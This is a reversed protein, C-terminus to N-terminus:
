HYEQKLTQIDELLRQIDEQKTGDYFGRIQRKKDILMFNETHIMDYADGNGDTKVALYSKRALEYIQKKDGTVLNWKADNVGKKLAYRKLQEVSDIQPTVSHSLLMVDNDNKTAEQIQAMHDTMIPCITQCTTFFFDAVYIKDKYDDQTITQGNQNILSFDAITHYKRQHQISSDVMEYNVMAPQFVPLVKKPKLISYFISIIIISLVLLAIGFNKYAKLFSLMLLDYKPTVTLNSLLFVVCDYSFVIKLLLILGNLRQTLSHTWDTITSYIKNGIFRNKGKYKKKPEM